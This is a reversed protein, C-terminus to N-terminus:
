HLPSYKRQKCEMANFIGDVRVFSGHEKCIIDCNKQGTHHYSIKLNFTLATKLDESPIEHKPQM